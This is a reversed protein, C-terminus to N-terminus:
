KCALCADAHQGLARLSEATCTNTKLFIHRLIFRGLCIQNDKKKRILIAPIIQNKTSRWRWTENTFKHLISLYQRQAARLVNCLCAKSTGRGRATKRQLWCM